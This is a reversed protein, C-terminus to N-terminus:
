RERSAGPLEHGIDVALRPPSSARLARYVTARRVDLIWEVTEGDRSCRRVTEVNDLDPRRVTEGAVGATASANSLTIRLLGEGRPTVADGDGAECGPFSGLSSEVVYGPFADTSDFEFVVRDFEAIQSFTLGVLPSPRDEEPPDRSIRGTTWPLTLGLDERAIEGLEADPLHPQEPAAAAEPEGGGADGADPGDEGSCGWALAPLLLLVLPTTVSREPTSM